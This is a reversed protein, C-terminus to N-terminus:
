ITRWGADGPAAIVVVILAIVVDQLLIAKIERSM